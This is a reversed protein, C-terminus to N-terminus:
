LSEHPYTLIVQYSQAVIEWGRKVLYDIVLKGKGGHPLDCDDIMVVSNPKLKDYAAEIEALHHRQSPEPNDKEFDLSDLYLFDIKKNFNKLFHVSDDEILDIAEEYDLIMTRANKLATPNIDVSYLKAGNLSCWYGTIITFGGDGSFAMHGGRATGTEVITKVNRTEMLQLATHMTKARADILSKHLFTLAPQLNAHSISVTLLTLTLFIPVTINNKQNNM